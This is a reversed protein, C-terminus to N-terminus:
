ATRAAVRAEIADWILGAVDTGDFKEIAVIGTPSTVNIETLWKGGIVDIGVFLLGRRKLEPGLEACIAEEEPTLVTKVASGGVALNSRIEGEGPLRNIAGAVVGDVLVIRKDGQAVDPLFAQVMHPERWATNFVEILASLNAGDAGVKFIAKGGNGHLPKIVIEGHQALFARAEDLSRTVLTPPMFHAYDLVFVKEPANRVNAPDNVVLTKDAIRELLHTATIYGLDFPPDQRMLVVDADDGLDLQVPDGFSFHNGPVRQVTVPHALAWVRGDSYNLAEAAYHFLRHGRAQASLMLAFSSDGGINIQDLPDMQVAVTLSM